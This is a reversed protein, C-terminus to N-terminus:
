EDKLLKLTEIFVPWMNVIVHFDRDYYHVFWDDAAVWIHYFMKLPCYVVGPSVDFPTRAADQQIETM